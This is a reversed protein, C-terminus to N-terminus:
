YDDLTLTTQGLLLQQTSITLENRAWEKTLRTGVAYLFDKIAVRGEVEPVGYAKARTYAESWEM